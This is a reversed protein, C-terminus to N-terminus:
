NPHNRINMLIISFATAHFSSCVVVHSSEVLKLFELPGANNINVDAYSLETADNISVIKLSRDKGKIKQALQKVREDGMFDYVLIYKDKLLHYDKGGTALSSWESKPLLFVPDIVQEAGYIGLDNLINIGSKERVSILDFNLLENKVFQKSTEDIHDVGFSAAYSNKKVNEDVFDLFYAKDHGNEYETNWIQDSGAILIDPHFNASKLEEISRFTKPTIHLYKKDFRDFAMKRGWTKLQKRNKYYGLIYRSFPIYRSVKYCKGQPPLFFLEYRHHSCLRYDVIEYQCGLSEMYHQLAFAQLTAGYNYVHHCTIDQILM